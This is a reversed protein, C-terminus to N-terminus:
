SVIARDQQVIPRLSYRLDSAAVCFLKSAEQLSKEYFFGKNSMLYYHASMCVRIAEQEDM